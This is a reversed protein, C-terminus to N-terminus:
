AHLRSLLKAPLEQMLTENYVAWYCISPLPSVQLQLKNMKAEWAQNLAAQADAAAAQQAQLAAQAGAKGEEYRATM